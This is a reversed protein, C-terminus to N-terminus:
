VLTRHRFSDFVTYLVLKNKALLGFITLCAFLYGSALKAVTVREAPAVQDRAFKLVFCWGDFNISM